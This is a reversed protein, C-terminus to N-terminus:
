WLGFAIARLVVQAVEPDGMRCPRPRADPSVGADDDWDEALRKTTKFITETRFLARTEQWDKRAKQTNLPNSMPVLNAWTHLLEKDALEPFKSEWADTPTQPYVHDVTM